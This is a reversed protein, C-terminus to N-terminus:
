APQLESAARNWAQQYPLGGRTLEMARSSIKTARAAEAPDAADDREKPTRADSRNCVVGKAPPAPLSAIFDQPDRRREERLRLACVARIGTRLVAEPVLGSDVLKEVIM